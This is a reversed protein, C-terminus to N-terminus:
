VDAQLLQALLLEGGDAVPKRQAVAVRGDPHAHVDFTVAVM